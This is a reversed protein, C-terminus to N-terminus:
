GPNLSISSEMFTNGFQKIEPSSLEIVVIHM